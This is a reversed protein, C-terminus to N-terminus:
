DFTLAYEFGGILEDICISCHKVIYDFTKQQCDHALLSKLMYATRTVEVGVQFREAAYEVLKHINKDFLKLKSDDFRIDGFDFSSFVTFKMKLKEMHEVTKTLVSMDEYLLNTAVRVEIDYESLADILKFLEDSAYDSFFLEGGMLNVTTTDFKSSDM